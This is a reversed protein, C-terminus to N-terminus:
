RLAGQLEITAPDDPRLQLVLVADAGAARFVDGDARLTSDPLVRERLSFPAHLRLETGAVQPLVLRVTEHEGRAFRVRFSAGDDGRALVPADPLAGAGAHVRVVARTLVAQRAARYRAQARADTVATSALLTRGAHGVAALALVEVLWPALAPACRARLVWTSPLGAGPGLWWLLAPEDHGEVGVRNGEVRLGTTVFVHGTRQPLDQLPVEFSGVLASVVFRVDHLTLAAGSPFCLRMRRTLLPPAFTLALEDGDCRVQLPARHVPDFGQGDDAFLQWGQIPDGGVPTGGAALHAFFMAAVAAHDHRVLAHRLHPLLYAERDPAVAFLEAAVAEAQVRGNPLRLLADHAALKAELDFADFAQWAQATALAAEADGAALQTRHLHAFAARKSPALRDGKRVTALDDRLEQLLAVVAAPSLDPRQAHALAAQAPAVHRAVIYADLAEVWQPRYAFVWAVLGACASLALL